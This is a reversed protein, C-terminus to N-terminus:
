LLHPFAHPTSPAPAALGGVEGCGVETPLTLTSLTDAWAAVAGVLLLFAACSKRSRMRAPSSQTVKRCRELGKMVIRWQFPHISDLLTSAHMIVTCTQAPSYIASLRVQALPYQAVKSPLPLREAASVWIQTQQRGGQSIQVGLVLVAHEAQLSWSFSQLPQPRLHRAGSSASAPRHLRQRGPRCLARLAPPPPRRTLLELRQPTQLAPRCRPSSAPSPRLPLSPLQPQQSPM